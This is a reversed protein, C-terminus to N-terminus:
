KAPCWSSKTEGNYPRAYGLRIMEQAVDVGDAEIKALIRGYKDRAAEKLLPHIYTTVRVIIASNIMKEMQAKAKLGLEKEEPCKPQRTEPTDLGGLRYSHYDVRITDGDVICMAMNALKGKCIPFQGSGPYEEARQPYNLYDETGALAPVSALALALAVLYRIM